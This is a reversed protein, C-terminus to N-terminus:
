KWSGVATWGGLPQAPAEPAPFPAPTPPDPDLVQTLFICDTSKTDEESQHEPSLHGATDSRCPTIQESHVTSDSCIPPLPVSTQHSLSLGWIGEAPMELELSANQVTSLEKITDAESQLM